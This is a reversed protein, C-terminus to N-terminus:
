ILVQQIACPVWEASYYDIRSFFRFFVYICRFLDLQQLDFLFFFFVPRQLDGISELELYVSFILGSRQSQGM